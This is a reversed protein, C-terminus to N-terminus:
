SENGLARTIVAGSSASLFAIFGDVIEKQQAVTYGSLPTDMVLHCAVGSRLMTSPTLPDPSYKEHELKIMHRNRKGNQHAITMKVVGDNSKYTSSTGSTSVRPLSNATGAITVSQPDTLAM